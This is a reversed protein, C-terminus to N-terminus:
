FHCFIVIHGYAHPIKYRNTNLVVEEIVLLTILEMQVEPTGVQRQDELLGVWYGSMRECKQTRDCWTYGVLYGLM